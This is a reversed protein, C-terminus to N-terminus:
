LQDKDMTDLEVNTKRVTRQVDHRAVMLKDLKDKYM